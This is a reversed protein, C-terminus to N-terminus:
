KRMFHLLNNEFIFRSKLCLFASIVEFRPFEMDLLCRLKFYNGLFQKRLIPNFTKWFVLSAFPFRSFRGTMPKRTFWKIEDHLIFYELLNHYMSSLRLALLQFGVLTQIDEDFYAMFYTCVNVNLFQFEELESDDEPEDLLKECMSLVEEYRRFMYLSLAKYCSGLNFKSGFEESLSTYFRIMYDNSIRALADAVDPKGPLIIAITSEETHESYIRTKNTKKDIRRFTKYRMMAALCYDAEYSLPM